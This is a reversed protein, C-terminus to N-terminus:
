SSRCDWRIWRLPSLRVVKESAQRQKAAECDKVMAALAGASNPLRDFTCTSSFGWRISRIAHSVTGGDWHASTLTVLVTECESAESPRHLFTGFKECYSLICPEFKQAKM